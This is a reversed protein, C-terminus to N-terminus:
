DGGGGSAGKPERHTRDPQVPLQFVNVRSLSPDAIYMHGHADISIGPTGRGCNPLGGRPKGTLDYIAISTHQSSVYVKGASDLSLGMPHPHPRSPRVGVPFVHLLRGDLDFVHLRTGASDLVAVTSDRLAIETPLDFAVGGRHRTGGVRSVVKGELDLVVLENAPSDLVLLHHNRDDIAIGAPGQFMPEGHVTGLSRLFIGERDYVEIVGLKADTVYIRDELDLAIDSPQQMRRDKGAAIRFSDKGDLVHVAPLRPDLVILRHRSDVAVRSPERLIPERGYALAMASSFASASRSLPKAGAVAQHPPAFNEVVREDHTSLDIWAPVASQPAAPGAMRCVQKAEAKFKGDPRYSGVYGAGTKAAGSSAANLNTTQAEAAPAQLMVALLSSACLLVVASPWRPM